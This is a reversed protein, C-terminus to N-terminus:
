GPAIGRVALALAAYSRPGVAEGDLYALRIADHLRSRQADTLTAVYEAGPGDKGVCPAGITM